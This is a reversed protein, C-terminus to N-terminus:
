GAVRHATFRTLYSSSAMRGWLFIPSTNGPTACGLKRPYVLYVLSGDQVTNCCARSFPLVWWVWGYGLRARGIDGLPLIHLLPLMKLLELRTDLFNACSGCGKGTVMIDALVSNWPHDRSFMRGTLSNVNSYM